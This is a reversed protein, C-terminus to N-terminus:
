VNRDVAFNAVFIMRDRDDRELGFPSQLAQVRQYVTGSLTDNSIKSLAQWVDDALSTATSYSAARVRAQVGPRALAPATGDGMMDAPARGASEYLTVCTDPDAPERGLFLNTGLTLDATAITAGDLYTGLDTLITSV